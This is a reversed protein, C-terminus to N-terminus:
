EFRVFGINNQKAVNLMEELKEKTLHERIYLAHGGLTKEHYKGELRIRTLLSVKEMKNIEFSNTYQERDTIGNIKGYIVRDIAVFKKALESDDTGMLSFNLNYKQSYGEVKRKMHEIIDLGLKQTDKDKSRNRKTLAFLAEELGIFGITLSGQKIIKRVKDKDKAKESDLWIGQKTFFPFEYVKRDAQTEFRELLQDKVLNLENDLEKYFEDYDKVNKNFLPSTKIGIRALNITTYSINGRQSAIQKDKDIINEMVRMNTANYAVETDPKNPKFYKKNFSADLMSFAPYRRRSAIDIAKKYLYYNIDKPSQNIGEKVKFIVFPALQDQENEIGFDIADLIKDTVMRGEASTDTGINITPYIKEKNNSDIVNSDHVFAEMAQAVIKETKKMAIDYSIRFIRQVQESDRSYKDFISIDFDITNIKAIEREMGNTAAFKIFDTYTLIDNMTQQLQKKFTKVVGPAMYYDFAPISQCGHQEKQNLTIILVALASYSMIDKPERIHLNKTNFGEDYLKTLNIQSSTTTGVPMFNLDHIHIEGSDHAEAIKKKIMYAKAFEKSLTSGYDVMKEFPSIITQDPTQSKLTLDELAKLFKHQKKEDFFIRRSQARRQRYEAFSYFVEIYNEQKLHKEILDQIDEIKIKNTKLNEIDKIVLNYIKNIDDETYKPTGDPLTISDFGKKIAIVIKSGDFEVRKGDRKIVKMEEFM